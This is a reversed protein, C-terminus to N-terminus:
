SQDRTGVCAQCHHIKRYYSGKIFEDENTVLGVVSSLDQFIIPLMYKTETVFAVFEEFLEILSINDTLGVLKTETPSKTICKQKWSLTCILYGRVYIAVGTHSKSDVTLAFAADVYAHVHMSAYKDGAHFIFHGAEAFDEL